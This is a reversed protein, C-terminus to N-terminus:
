ACLSSNLCGVAMQVQTANKILRKINATVDQLGSSARRLPREIYESNGDSCGISRMKDVAGTQSELVFLFSELDEVVKIIELLLEVDPNREHSIM